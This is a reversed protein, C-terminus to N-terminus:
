YKYANGKYFKKFTNTVMGDDKIRQYEGNDGPVVKTCREPETPFQTCFNNDAVKWTGQRRKKNDLVQVLKGDLAYYATYNKGLSDAFGAASNGSVLAKIQDGTLPAAASAMGSALLLCLLTLRKMRIEELTSFNRCTQTPFRAIGDRGCAPTM